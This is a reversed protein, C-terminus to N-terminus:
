CLGLENLKIKISHEFYNKNGAAGHHGAWGYLDYDAPKFLNFNISFYTNELLINNPHQYCNTRLFKGTAMEDNEFSKGLNLILYNANHKDLWNNLLYIQRCAQVETWSPHEFRVATPDNYFSKNELGHHSLILEQNIEEGNHDFVIRHYSKTSDDSVVTLRVLPPVGILFVDQKWNYQDSDSILTHVVSDFSNGPWSYNYTNQVNLFKATHMWFSDKPAVCVGPTSYSDGFVWLNRYKKLM